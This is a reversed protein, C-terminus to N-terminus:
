EVARHAVTEPNNAEDLVEVAANELEAALQTLVRMRRQISKSERRVDEAREALREAPAKHQM